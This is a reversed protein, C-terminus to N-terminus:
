GAAQRNAGAFARKSAFLFYFAVLVIALGAVSGLRVFPTLDLKMPNEAQLVKMWPFMALQSAVLKTMRAQGGPAFNFVVSNLFSGLFYAMGVLRAAPQLGLLGIGIYIQAAVLVLYYAAAAWGTLLATFLIAPTHLALNTPIL